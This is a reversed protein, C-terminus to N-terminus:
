KNLIYTEAELVAEQLGQSWQYLLKTSWPELAWKPIDGKMASEKTFPFQEQLQAQVLVARDQWQRQDKIWADAQDLSASTSASALGADALVAQVIEESPMLEAIEPDRRDITKDRAVTLIFAIIEEPLQQAITSDTLNTSM